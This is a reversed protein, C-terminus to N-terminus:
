GRDRPSPSTYLLCDSFVTNGLSLLPVVGFDVTNDTNNDATMQEIGADGTPESGPSLTIVNSQILGDTLGDGDTDQQTGNDNGDVQDDSAFDTTSSVPLSEPAEFQVIFDGPM